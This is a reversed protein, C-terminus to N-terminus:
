QAAIAPQLLPLIEPHPAAPAAAIPPCLYREGSDALVAVILKGANEPRRAVQTAAWIASGASLGVNLGETRLLDRAAARAAATDVELAEDAVTTDYTGPLLDAPIDSVRHVGEIQDVYPNDETPLSTQAPEVIAVHVGPNRSKLYAGAGSITGGTGVAGVLIDVAGDTDDWIEPGTTEFHIRPNAPNGIQDAFYGDPNVEQMFAIIRDRAGPEVFVRSPIQVIEAGFHRLLAIKDNSICDRTYFKSRYGRAAAIAALGIGTNGSTLDYVLGGPKLRGRREGERILALATRDKISGAPNFSELKAVIRASLGHLARYRHLELLPTNGILDLVSNKLLAM